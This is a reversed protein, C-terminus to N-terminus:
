ASKAGPKEANLAEQVAPRSAVRERYAVLNKYGALDLGMPKAWNTVTFLYADAVSFSDGMLYQRGELQSDLWQFRSALKDRSIKKGEEPMDPNFLPSFTKHVETGIFTLWEQLRYRPLTGNAPALNRTPVQDAIYQMIVPGERLRTGDDLELLPVYGLPNIAYYDTGDPLQHTKTSALVPEFALGAERLVIHSALSCAGPSYYLKM